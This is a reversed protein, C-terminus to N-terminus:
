ANQLAFLREAWDWDEPTDIDVARTRPYPIGITQDWPNAGPAQWTEAWAFYFQGLDYFAPTLDQSRTMMYEPTRPTLNGSPTPIYTREVACPVEACALSWVGPQSIAAAGSQLDEAMTFVATAYLGCILGSGETGLRRAYDAIVPTTGTFDDALNDPRLFPVQAGFAKAVEAIEQDETSVYIADFLASARATEIIRGLLPKGCFDRINKRPIRKSGGRAPIICITM